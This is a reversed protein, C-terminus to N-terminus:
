QSAVSHMLRIILTLLDVNDQSRDENQQRKNRTNIKYWKEQVEEIKKIRLM